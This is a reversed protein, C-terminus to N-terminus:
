WQELTCSEVVDVEGAADPAQACGVEVLADDVPDLRLLRGEVLAQDGAEVVVLHEARHEIAEANLRHDALRERDVAPPCVRPKRLM